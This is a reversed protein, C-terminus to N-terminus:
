KWQTQNSKINSSTMVVNLMIHTNLPKWLSAIRQMFRSECQNLNFPNLKLLYLRGILFRAFHVSSFTPDTEGLLLENEVSCNWSIGEQTVQVQSLNKGNNNHGACDTLSINSIHLTWNM